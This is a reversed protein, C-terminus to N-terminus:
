AICIALDARPRPLDEHGVPCRRQGPQDAYFGMVSLM